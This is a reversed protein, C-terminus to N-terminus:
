FKLRLKSIMSPLDKDQLSSSQLGAKVLEKLCKNELILGILKGRLYLNTEEDSRAANNMVNAMESIRTYLSDISHTSCSSELPQTLRNAQRIDMLKCFQQRYKSMVLELVFQHDELAIQLQKNERRLTDLDVSEPLSKFNREPRITSAEELNKITKKYEKMEIMTNSLVHTKILMENAAEEDKALRDLLNQADDIMADLSEPESQDTDM